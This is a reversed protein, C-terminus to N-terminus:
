MKDNKLNYFILIPNADEMNGMKSSIENILDNNTKDLNKYIEFRYGELISLVKSKKQDSFYVVPEFFLGNEDLSLSCLSIKDEKENYICMFRERNYLYNFLIVDNIKYFHNIKSPIKGDYINKIYEKVEFQSTEKDIYDTSYDKFSIKYAIKLQKTGDEYQYICNSLLPLIYFTSDYSCIANKTFGFTHRLGQLYPNYSLEQKILEFQANYILVNNFINDKGSASGNGRYFLWNGDNTKTFSYGPEVRIRKFFNGSLDFVSIFGQIGDYIYLQQNKKDYFFDKASVYEEPSPGKKNLKSIYKGSKSFIFICEQKSDLILIRDDIFEIKDIQSILSENNTELPIYSDFSFYDTTKNKESELDVHITVNAEKTAKNKTESCCTLFLISYIFLFYKM